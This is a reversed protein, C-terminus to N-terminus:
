AFPSFRTLAASCEASGFEAEWDESGYREFFVAAMADELTASTVGDKRAYRLTYMARQVMKCIGWTELSLWEYDLGAAHFADTTEITGREVCSLALFRRSVIRLYDQLDRVQAPRAAIANM